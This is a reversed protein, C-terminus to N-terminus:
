KHIMREKWGEQCYKEFYLKCAVRNKYLLTKGRADRNPPLRSFRIFVIAFLFYWGGYV